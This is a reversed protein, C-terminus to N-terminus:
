TSITQPANDRSVYNLATIYKNSHPTYKLGSSVNLNTEVSESYKRAARADSKTIWMSLFPDLLRRETVQKTGATPVRDLPLFSVRSKLSHRMPECTRAYLCRSSDLQCLGMTQRSVGHRMGLCVSSIMLSRSLQPFDESRPSYCM